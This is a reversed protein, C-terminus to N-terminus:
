VEIQPTFEMQNLIDNQMNIGPFVDKLIVKGNEVKFICRETIIIIVDKRENHHIPSFTIEKVNKVAKHIKGENLISIQNKSKKLALGKATFSGVFIIKKSFPLYRYLRWM